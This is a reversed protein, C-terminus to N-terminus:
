RVRSVSTKKMASGLHLDCMSATFSSISPRNALFSNENTGILLIVGLTLINPPHIVIVVLVGFESLYPHLARKTTCPCLFMSFYYMMSVYFGEM